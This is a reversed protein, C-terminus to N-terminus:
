GLEDSLADGFASASPSVVTVSGTPTEQTLRIPMILIYDHVPASQRSAIRWGGKTTLRLSPSLLANPHAQCPARRSGGGCPFGRRPSVVPSARGPVAAGRGGSPPLPPDPLQHLAQLDLWARRSSPCPLPLASCSRGRMVPSAPTRTGDLTNGPVETGTKKKGRGDSGAAPGRIREAGTREPHGARNLPPKGGTIGTGLHPTIVHWSPARHANGAPAVQRRGSRRAVASGTSQDRRAPPL